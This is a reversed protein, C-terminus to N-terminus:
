NFRAVSRHQHSEFRPVADALQQLHLAEDVVGVRRGVDGPEDVAHRYTLKVLNFTELESGWFHIAM